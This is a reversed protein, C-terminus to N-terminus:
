STTPRGPIKFSHLIGPQIRISPRDIVALLQNRAIDRLPHLPNKTVDQSGFDDFTNWDWLDSIFGEFGFRDCLDAFNVLDHANANQLVLRLEVLKTDRPRNAALWELNKILHVFKGPRRVDEYVEASGADISILFKEIHPLVPSDPLLNKMLLGNTQLWLWQNERPVFNLFLPRMILSALPDGYGTVVIDLPDTFKEILSITHDMIAKKKEFEPGSHINILERRCSPCALNCTEDINISIHYRNLYIDRDLVGCRTVACHRYTKDKIDSQYLRAKPFKWVDNLEQCNSINGVSIPLWNGCTCVFCDGQNDIVVTKEPVNCHYPTVPAVFDKGRELSHYFSLEAATAGSFIDLDKENM